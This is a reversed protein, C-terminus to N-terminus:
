VDAADKECFFAKPISELVYYIGDADKVQELYGLRRARKLQEANKFVTLKKVDHAKILTRGRGEKRLFKKLYEKLENLMLRDEKTLGM